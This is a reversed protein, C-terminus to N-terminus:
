NPLHRLLDPIRNLKNHVQELALNIHILEMVLKIVSILRALFHEVHLLHCLKLQLDVEELVLLALALHKSDQIITWANRKPCKLMGHCTLNLHISEDLILLLSMRLVVAVVDKLKCSELQGLGAQDNRLHNLQVGLASLWLENVQYM